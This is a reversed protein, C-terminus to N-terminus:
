KLKLNKKIIKAVKKPSLNTNDIELTKVGPVRKSFDHKKMIWILEKKNSTKYSKKRSPNIVRKYLEKKNCSIAVFHVISNYKKMMKIIAKPFAFNNKEIEAYTLIIGKFNLKACLKFIELFHKDLIEIINEYYKETFINAIADYFDHIHVVKYKTIRSLEKAITFKGVGPPGHLFIIKM